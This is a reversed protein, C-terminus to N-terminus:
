EGCSRISSLFKAIKNLIRIERKQRATTGVFDGTWGSSTSWATAVIDPTYTPQLTNWLWFRHGGADSTPRQRRRREPCGTWYTGRSLVRGINGRWSCWCCWQPCSCPSSRSPPPSYAFWSRRSTVNRSQFFWWTEGDIWRRTLSCPIGRNNLFYILLFVSAFSGLLKSSGSGPSRSSGRHTTTSSDSM